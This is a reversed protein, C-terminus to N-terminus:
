VVTYRFVDARFNLISDFCVEMLFADDEKENKREDASLWESIGSKELEECKELDTKNDKERVGTFTQENRKCGDRRSVVGTCGEGQMREADCLPDMALLEVPLEDDPIIINEEDSRETRMSEKLAWELQEEETATDLNVSTELSLKKAQELDQEFTLSTDNDKEPDSLRNLFLDDFMLFLVDFILFLVDFILRGYRVQVCKSWASLPVITGRHLFKCCSISLKWQLPTNIEIILPLISPVQPVKLRM